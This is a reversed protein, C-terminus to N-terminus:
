SRGLGVARNYRALAQAQDAWATERAAGPVRAVRRARPPPSSRRSRTCARGPPPRAATAATRVCRPWSAHGARVRDDEVEQRLMRAFAPALRKAPPTPDPLTRHLWVTSSGFEDAEPDIPQVKKDDQHPTPGVVPPGTPAKDPANPSDVDPAAGPDISGGETAPTETGGDPTDPDAAPDDPTAPDDVGEEVPAEEEAPVEEVPVEEVPAEEEPTGEEPVAEGDESEPDETTTTTGTETGDPSGVLMDGAGASLAAGAFFLTAFALSSALRRKRSRIRRRPSFLGARAASVRGEPTADAPDAALGTGRLVRLTWGLFALFVLRSSTRSRRPRSHCETSRNNLRRPRWTARNANFNRAAM